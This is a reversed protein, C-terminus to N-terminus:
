GGTFYKLVAFLVGVGICFWLIEGISVFGIIPATFFGDIAIILWNMFDEPATLEGQEGGKYGDGIQSKYWEVIINNQENTKYYPIILDIFHNNNGFDAFPTRITVNLHNIIFFRCNTIDYGDQKYMDYLEEYPFYIYYIDESGIGGMLDQNRITIEKSVATIYKSGDVISEQEFVQTVNWTAIIESNDQGNEQTFSKRIGFYNNTTTYNYLETDLIFNHALIHINYRQLEKGMNLYGHSNVDLPIHYSAKFGKGGDIFTTAQLEYALGQTELNVDEFVVSRTTAIEFFSMVEDMTTGDALTISTELLRNNDDYLDLITNFSTLTYPDYYWTSVKRVSVSGDDQSSVDFFQQYVITSTPEYESGSYGGFVSYEAGLITDNYTVEPYVLIRYYNIYPPTNVTHDENATANSEINSITFVIAKSGDNENVIGNYIEPFESNFTYTYEKSLAQSAEVFTNYYSTTSDKGGLMQPMDVNYMIENYQGHRSNTYQITSFPITPSWNQKSAGVSSAGVTCKSLLSITTLILYVIAIIGIVVRKWNIAKAREKLEDNIIPKKKKAM